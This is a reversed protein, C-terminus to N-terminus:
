PLRLNGADVGAGDEVHVPGTLKHVGTIELQQPPASTYIVWDGQKVRARFVGQSDTDTSFGIMDSGPRGLGVRIGAAPRGSADTIRGRIESGEPSVLRLGALRAGSGMTIRHPNPVIFNPGEPISVFVLYSGAPLMDMHFRGGAGAQAVHAPSSGIPIRVFRIRYGTLPKGKLSTLTGDAAGPVGAPATESLCSPAQMPRPRSVAAAPSASAHRSLPRSGPNAAVVMGPVLIVSALAYIMTRGDRPFWSGDQGAMPTDTYKEWFVAGPFM